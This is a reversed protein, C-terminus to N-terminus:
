AAGCCLGNSFAIGGLNGSYGKAGGATYYDVTAPPTTSGIRFGGLVAAMGDHQIRMKETVPYGTTNARVWFSLRGCVAGGERAGDIYAIDNNGAIGSFVLRSISDSANVYNEIRLGEVVGAVTDRAHIKSAPAATGVGIRTNTTDVNLVATTGDAKRVQVAAAGDAAPFISATKLSTAIAAGLTPSVLVPSTALVLVGSGTPDSICGALEASTTVASVVGTVTTVKMIGTSLGALAQEASLNANATQTIYTADTPAGGGAAAKNKWKSTATEYTLVETDAPSAIDVDSHSPLAHAQPHHPAGDGIATHEADRMVGSPIQADALVGSHDATNSLAHLRAHQDGSPIGGPLAADKSTQGGGGGGGPTFELSPKGDQGLYLKGRFYGLKGPGLRRPEPTQPVAYDAAERLSRKIVEPIKQNPLYPV